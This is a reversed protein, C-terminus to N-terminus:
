EKGLLRVGLSSLTTLIGVGLIGVQFSLHDAILGLVFPTFGMGFIVGISVIAGTVMSRESLPTFKSVTALGTPFFALSLTAQLILTILILALNSSLSLGITSLGAALLSLTLM